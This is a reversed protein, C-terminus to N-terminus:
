CSKPAGDELLSSTGNQVSMKPSNENKNEKGQPRFVGKVFVKTAEAARTHMPVQMPVLNKLENATLAFLEVKSLTKVTKTSIPLQKKHSPSHNFSWELLEEGYLEFKNTTSQLDDDDGNEGNSKKFCCVNGQTTFVMATVPKGEQIIESDDNYYKPELSKYIWEALLNQDGQNELNQVAKRLLPLCVHHKIKTVLDKSLHSILKDMDFDKNEELRQRICSIIREEMNPPLNNRTMWLKVEPKILRMEGEIEELRKAKNAAKETTM